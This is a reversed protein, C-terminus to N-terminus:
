GAAAIWTRLQADTLGFDKGTDAFVRALSQKQRVMRDSVVSELKLIAAPKAGVQVLSAFLLEDNAPDSAMILRVLALRAAPEGLVIKELRAASDKVDARRLAALMTIQLEKDLDVALANGAELEKIRALASDYDSRLKRAQETLTGLSGRADALSAQVGALQDQTTKLRASVDALATDGTEAQGQAKKLAESLQANTAGLEQAQKEAQARATQADKMAAALKDQEAQLDKLRVSLAEIERRLGETDGAGALQAELKTIRARAAELDKKLRDNDTATAGLATAIVKATDGQEGLRELEARAADLDASLTAVEGLADALREDGSRALAERQKAVTDELLRVRGEATERARQAADADRRASEAQEAAADLEAELTATDPPLAAGADPLKSGAALVIAGVGTEAARPPRRVYLLEDPAAEAWVAAWVKADTDVRHVPALPTVRLALRDLRALQGTREAGAAQAPLELQRARLAYAADNMPVLVMVDIDADTALDIPALREADALLVPLDSARVPAITVEWAEPFYRQSGAVPDIAAKPCPGHPPLVRFYQRAEFAEPLGAAGRATRVAQMLERYHAALDQQLAGPTGPARRPRRVLGQDLWQLRADDVALLALAVSEDDPLVFREHGGLLERALAARIALPDQRPLGVPLRYLVLQVGEALASVRPVRPAALDRPYAEAIGDIVEARALALIYLGRPLRALRGDNLTALRAGDALDIDLASDSLELVRGSPAVAIGPAVRLVQTAPRSVVLGRVIGSGFAQGLELLREDVYVQDRTLDSAKLLQGDFYNTRRLRPDIVAIRQAGAASTGTALPVFSIDTAM